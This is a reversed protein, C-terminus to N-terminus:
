FVNESQNSHLNSQGLVFLLFFFFFNDNVQCKSRSNGSNSDDNSNVISVDIFIQHGEFLSTLM